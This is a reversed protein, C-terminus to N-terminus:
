KNAFHIDCQFTPKTQMIAHCLVRPNLELFPVKLLKVKGSQAFVKWGNGSHDLVCNESLEGVLL